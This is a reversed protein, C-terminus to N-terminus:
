RKAIDAGGIFIRNWTPSILVENVCVRPPMEAIFRITRGLDEPQMMRELEEKAPPVPRNTMIPTAAEGPMICTARLGNVCEEMNFDHTLAIVAHKTANYAPGTLLAAHRGAWSSVNIILGDRRARMAPLVAHMTYLMGNLNIDVIQRWGEIEVNKWFRKPLNIGASNVLIDVHGHRALLVDALKKVASADTVDLQASEARGGAATIRRVSEDLEVLRRGSVIVTAGAAALAEAGARGIGTGGGTVWAVKGSLTSMAETEM